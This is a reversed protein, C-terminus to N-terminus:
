NLQDGILTRKQVTDYISRLARTLDSSLGKEQLLLLNLKGIAKQAFEKLLVPEHDEYCIKRVAATLSFLAAQDFGANQLVAVQQLRSRSAKTCDQQLAWSVFQASNETSWIERYLELLGALPKFAPLPFYRQATMLSWKAKVPGTPSWLFEAVLSHARFARWTADATGAELEQAAKQLVATVSARPFALDGLSQKVSHYADLLGDLVIGARIKQIERFLLFVLKEDTAVLRYFHLPYVTYECPREALSAFIVQDLSFCSTVPTSQLLIVDFDAVLETPYLTASGVLLSATYDLHQERCASSLAALITPQSGAAVLPIM